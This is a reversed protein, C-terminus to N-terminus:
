DAVNRITESLWDYEGQKGILHDGIPWVHDPHEEHYLRVETECRLLFYFTAAGRQIPNKLPLLKARGEVIRHSHGTSEGYALLLNDIPAGLEEPAIYQDALMVVDGQRYVKEM